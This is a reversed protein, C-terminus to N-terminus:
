RDGGEGAQGDPSPRPSPLGQSRRAPRPLPGQVRVREWLSLPYSKLDRAAPRRPLRHRRRAPLHRHHRRGLPPRAPALHRPRPRAVHRRDQRQPRSSCTGGRARPEPGSRQGAGRHRCPRRRDRAPGRRPQREVAADALADAANLLLNLVIQTIRTSPIRVQPADGLETSMPTVTALRARAMQLAREVGAQGRGHRRRAHSTRACSCSSTACWRPSRRRPCSRWSSTRCSGTSTAPMPPRRARAAARRARQDLGAGGGSSALPNAIEHALGAALLSTTAFRDLRALAQTPVPTVHHEFPATTVAHRPRRAALRSCYGM